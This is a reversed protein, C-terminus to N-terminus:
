FNRCCNTTLCMFVSWGGAEPSLSYASLATHVEHTLICWKATFLILLNWFISLLPYHMHAERSLINALMETVWQCHKPLFLRATTSLLSSFRLKTINRASQFLLVWLTLSSDGCEFDTPKSVTPCYGKSNSEVKAKSSCIIGMYIPFIVYEQGTLASTHAQTSKQYYSILSLHYMSFIKWNHLCVRTFLFFFGIVLVDDCFCWRFYFWSACKGEPEKPFCTERFPLLTNPLYLEM